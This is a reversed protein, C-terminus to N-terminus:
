LIHKKCYALINDSSMDQVIPLWGNDAHEQLIYYCDLKHKGKLTKGSELMANKSKYYSGDTMVYVPLCDSKGRAIKKRPTFGLEILVSKMMEDLEKKTQAKKPMVEGNGKTPQM